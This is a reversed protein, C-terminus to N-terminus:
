PPGSDKRVGSGLVYLGLIGLLVAFFSLTGQDKYSAFATAAGLISAALLVIAGAIMRMTAM